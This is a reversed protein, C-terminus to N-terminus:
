IPSNCMPWSSKQPNISEAAALSIGIAGRYLSHMESTASSSATAKLILEKGKRLFPERGTLRGIEFLSLGEGALGCCLTPGSGGSTACISEASASAIDAYQDSKYCRAAASWLLAHGAAGHCWGSWQPANPVADELGWSISKGVRQARSLLAELHRTLGISPQTETTISWNLVSYLAGARGHAFGLYQRGDLSSRLDPTILEESVCQALRSACQSLSQNLETRAGSVVPWLLAAGLLLSAYGNTADLPFTERPFGERKELLLDEVLRVYRTSLHTAEISDGSTHRVLANILVVGAYQHFLSMRGTTGPLLDPGTFAEESRSQHLARTAWLDAAALVEPDSRICALRLLAYAIGSAGHYVSCTPGRSIGENALRSNLGYCATLQDACSLLSDDRSGSKRSGLVAGAVRSVSQPACNVASSFDQLFLDVSPFRREPDKELARRLVREVPSWSIEFQAFPRPSENVIQRLSNAADLSHIVYTNRTILLFAVIAIGYQEGSSTPMPVSRGDLIELAAEPEYFHTMGIREKPPSISPCLAGGLDVLSILGNKDLLINQPHVDGHLAGTNHFAAYAWLIRKVYEARDTLSLQSDHAVQLATRGPRWELVLYPDERDCDAALPRPVSSNTMASLHQLVSLERRIANHVFTPAERDVCKLAVPTGDSLEARYVETDAIPVHLFSEADTSLRGQLSGYRWSRSLKAEPISLSTKSVFDRTILPFSRM